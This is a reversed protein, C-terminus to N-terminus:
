FGRGARGQPRRRPWLGDVCRPASECIAAGRSHRALQYGNMGPMGIDILATQPKFKEALTIASPGDVAFLAEHGWSRVLLALSQGADENDDVILVRRPVAFGSRVPTEQANTDVSHLAGEIPILLPLRVIFESGHGLGSSRAEIRGGHLELVRRVLTLGIGLVGASNEPAHTMQTFLDFITELADPALGIGTDRVSVVAEGRAKTLTLEIRGGVATYKSASDLLNSIIQEM